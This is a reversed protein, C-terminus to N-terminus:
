VVLSHHESEFIKRSGVIAMRQHCYLKWVNRWLRTRHDEFEVNLGIDNRATQWDIMQGHSPFSKTDMLKDPAATYAGGHRKLLNEACRRVYDRTQRYQQVTVPHFQAFTAQYAANGPDQRLNEAADDYADLYDFVSHQILNGGHDHLSVQPDIPGLESTTSMVISDAGLTIITAASKAKDPVIVRFENREEGSKSEWIMHVLKEATNVDGGWSHLLLDISTGQELQYLLEQFFLVDEDSMMADSSAVYCVLEHKTVSKIAQITHKRMEVDLSRMQVLPPRAVDHEDTHENPSESAM